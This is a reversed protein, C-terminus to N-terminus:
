YAQEKHKELNNNRERYTHWDNVYATKDSEPMDISIENSLDYDGKTIKNDLIAIKTLIETYIPDASASERLIKAQEWCAPQINSQGM